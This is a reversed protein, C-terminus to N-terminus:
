GRKGFLKNWIGKKPENGYGYGYSGGYGYGYGYAYGYRKDLRVGNLLVSMNSLKGQEYLDQIEPLQRRDMKGSRIVFITLESIRNIISADAVLNVPVNDIIIYDYRQKLELIMEDLRESLLLEVPNPAIIGIPIVDIKDAVINKYIVDDLTVKPDVLFNTVGMGKPANVRETLTGKRLDLDLLVVRKNLYTFSAALNIATFTKGAGINFSTLTIVRKEKGAAMFGINTRLIRFAESTYSRGKEEVVVEGENKKHRLVYPIEGLFPVSIAEEIDKRNRVGTDLMLMLLFVVAPLAVGIGVGLMIKRIRSPYVPANSGSAPDIIRANNDTMAQNLANEERKNLLYVYLDEKVKQQREVSLMVRQQEPIELAKGRAQQEERQVNRIKIDMGALTNDVARNINIRMSELTRDLDQVVPNASSSGEVLRNRRLLTTNYAVIQQEVNADVLGTNNPILDNQKTENTLYERMMEVLKRDTEIQNREAQYQRSDSFYMQGAANVDQGQNATKLQEIDSEVTGLESEIINLREQIFNATYIAIQNKDEISIENYVTILMTILDAAREPSSDQLTIQLLSADEEMQTIGLNGLFYAVLERQPRKSVHIDEDFNSETYYESPTILVQGFPTKVEKNLPVKIDADKDENDWGKILVNTTDLPTVTFSYSSDETKGLVKVQIPSKKYLEYDRLGRRVSYSIDAGIRNITQRMLEKSRLQLIEGAVSVSNFASNTTTLRATTPTNMPTKIMVTQSQSYVFSTKSYQYLYYGGFILISLLFWKWQFLLYKLIDLVNIAKEEKVKPMPNIKHSNDM